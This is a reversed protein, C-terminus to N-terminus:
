FAVVRYFRQGINPALDTAYGQNGSVWTNGSLTQWTADTLSNKFQVQYTKGNAAPWTLTPSQLTAPAFVMQGAFVRTPNSTAIKVAVLDNAQNYDQAILDSAWSQFVVTQGDGSFQPAFSRNNGAMGSANFSLLTTTDTQRDYLFVNPLGNTAGAVLNTATSRYAVFRGDNSIAPSDSPGSAAGPPNGQSVLLNSRTVFDYLYVDTIGNTDLALQANTTSYVLFRADGSFQL